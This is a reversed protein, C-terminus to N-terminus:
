AQAAEFAQAEAPEAAIAQGWSTAFPRALLAEAGADSVYLGRFADTPDQGARQWRRVERRILVDIRALEAQVHAFNLDGPEVSSRISSDAIEPPKM